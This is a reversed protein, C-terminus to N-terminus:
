RMNRQLAEYEAETALFVFEQIDTMLFRGDMDCAIEMIRKTNFCESTLNIDNYEWKDGIQIPMYEQGATPLSYSALETSSKLTEVWIYSATASIM